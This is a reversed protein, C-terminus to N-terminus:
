ERLVGNVEVLSDSFLSLDPFSKPPVSFAEEYRARFAEPIGNVVPGELLEARPRLAFHMEMERGEKIRVQGRPECDIFDAVRLCTTQSLNVRDAAGSSEMRSAFNVTNGWIDFAFKRVGVVGAVVPGSYLGLRIRWNVGKDPRALRRSAAVMELAALVADVAHSPSPTPLGSAFMYADGITKLKELGYRGIIEDFATFYENLSSILEGAPMKESSLTFGVFDSFCVTVDDFATPKVAGTSRLETAVPRPLINLLLAENQDRESRVEATREEVVHELWRNKAELIRLRWRLILWGAFLFAAVYFTFAWWTRYWPARVRFAFAVDPSIDGHANRARVSFNYTREALNNYDKHTDPTWPSWQKDSGELRVQYQVTSQDEPFPAAFDFRLANDSYPLLPATKVAADGDSISEERGTILVRRLLVHFGKQDHALPKEERYLGSGDGSAWATGDEDLHFGWIENIGAQLLPQLFWQYGGNKQKILVGNYGLGIVWVNGAKDERVISVGKAGDCFQPGLEDDPVFKKQKESFKLLGRKTAFVAHGRLPYVFKFDEPVGNSADFEEVRAPEARFDIRWIHARTTAWVRGDPDEVVSRFEQGRSEIAAVQWASGDHQLVQVGDRGALYVTNADHASFSIDWVVHTPLIQKAQTGSVLYLGRQTGVFSNGGHSALAYVAEAIGAVPDFVPESGPEPRLRFLGLSTGAYLAGDLRDMVIVSGRLGQADGFSSFGTDFRTLGSDTAIWIGGRLDRYFANIKDSPLGTKKNLIRQVRGDQDLLVVGGTSTGVAIGGGPWQSVASVSHQVLYADAATVFPQIASPSFRFLGLANAVIPQDGPAFFVNARTVKIDGDMAPVLESKTMRLLGRDTSTVFLEGYASFARGFRKAPKWVKIEGTQTLLFLRRHSCFYVGDPTALVDFINGFIRDAKPLKDVLSTFSTAGHHDPALYGLLNDGGVFIRGTSDRALAQAGNGDSLQILRWFAGDYELVGSTNGFYMVGRADQAIAWNQPNASYEKASYNHFFFSGAEPNVSARLGPCAIFIALLLAFHAGRRIM